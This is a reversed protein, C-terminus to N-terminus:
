VYAVNQKFWEAFAALNSTDLTAPPLPRGTEARQTSPDPAAVADGGGGGGGGVVVVTAGAGSGSENDSDVPNRVPPITHEALRQRPPESDVGPSSPQMM